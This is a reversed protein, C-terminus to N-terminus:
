KIRLLINGKIKEETAINYRKNLEYWISIGILESNKYNKFSYSKDRTYTNIDKSKYVKEMYEFTEKYEKKTLYLVHHYVDSKKYGKINKMTM